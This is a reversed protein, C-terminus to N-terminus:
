DSGLLEHLLQHKDKVVLNNSAEKELLNDLRKAAITNKIRSFYATVAKTQGGRHSRAICQNAQMPTMPAEYFIQYYSVQLNLGVGGSDINLIALRCNPDNTFKDIEADPNNTEGFIVAPNYKAYLARLKKVTQKFYCFIIIKHDNPNISEVLDLLWDEVENKIKDETYLEPSSLIQLATQRLKSVNTADLIEGEPLELIREKMLKRYLARHEKSLIVEQQIPVMPPLDHLVDQKTVRRGNKYLNEYLVETEKYGEIEMFDSYPNYIVHKREFSRKTPYAEPYVMRIMGYSDMLTNPIPSGTFLHLIYEGVSEGVWKWVVKHITSGNNKLAHAEDFYLVAYGLGKLPHNRLPLTPKGNPTRAPKKKIPHLDRFANYSMVVVDPIPETGNQWATLLQKKKRANYKGFPCITLIKDIGIFDGVFNGCWQGILKPPMVMVVPNGLSAWMAISAQMALTKGTGADNWIGFRENAVLCKLDGIQHDWPKLRMKVGYLPDPCDVGAANFFNSLYYSSM